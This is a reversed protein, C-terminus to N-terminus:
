GSCIPSPVCWPPRRIDYESLGDLKWLMAERAEQLYDRLDSKAGTVTLCSM